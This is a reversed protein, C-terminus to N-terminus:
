TTGAIVTIYGLGSMEHDFGEGEIKCCFWYMDYGYTALIGRALMLSWDAQAYSFAGFARLRCEGKERIRHVIAGALAKKAAASAEQSAGKPVAKVKLAGEWSADDFPKPQSKATLAPVVLNPPVIAQQIDSM